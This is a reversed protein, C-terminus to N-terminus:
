FGLCLCLFRCGTVHGGLVGLRVEWIVSDRRANMCGLRCSRRGALRRVAPGSGRGRWLSRLVGGM